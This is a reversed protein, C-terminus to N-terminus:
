LHGGLLTIVGLFRNKVTYLFKEGSERGFGSLGSVFFANIEYCFKQVKELDEMFKLYFFMRGM